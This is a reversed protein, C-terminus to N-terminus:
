RRGPCQTLLLMSPVALAQCPPTPVQLTSAERKAEKLQQNVVRTEPNQAGGGETVSGNGLTSVFSGMSSLTSPAQRVDADCTM